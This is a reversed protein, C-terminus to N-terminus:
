EDERSAKDFDRLDAERERNINLYRVYRKYHKECFYGGDRKRTGEEECNIGPTNFHVCPRM